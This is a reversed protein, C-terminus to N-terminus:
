EEPETPPTTVPPTTPTLQLSTKLDSEPKPRATPDPLTQPTYDHDRKRLVKVSEIVDDKQLARVVDLGEVVRGFVTHQGNLHAPATVTLYFQSGATHPASQKAMALSGTFHKRADDRDHEDPIRYGPGGAGAPLDSGEKSNPDGGQAMFNPIVRHFKTGDYFGSEALSIFNAVTNPAENEFLEVVIPGRSTDIEARPLDDAAEEASRIQQETIWFDVYQRRTPLVQDVASKIAPDADLTEQPISELASVAEEYRQEAFLCESLLLAAKPETAPDIQADQLIEVARGYDNRAKYSEARGITVEPDDPFMRGLRAYIDDLRETQGSRQCYRAWALGVQVDHTSELLRGFLENVRDADGLWESLQLEMAMGRVEDPHAKTYEAVRERVREIVAHDKDTVGGQARLSDYLNRFETGLAALQPDTDAAAPRAPVLALLVLLLVIPKMDFERSFFLAL